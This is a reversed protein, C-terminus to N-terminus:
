SLLKELRERLIEFTARHEEWRSMAEEYEGHSVWGDKGMVQTRLSDGHFM